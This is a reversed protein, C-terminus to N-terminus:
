GHRGRRSVKVRSFDAKSFQQVCLSFFLAGMLLVLVAGMQPMVVFGHIPFAVGSKILEATSANEMHLAVYRFMSTTYTLPNLYVVPKLIAPMVMTPIYAGSLFILPFSVLTILLQFNTSDKTLAALLLGLASFTFGVLCMIGLMIIGNVFDIRFGLFFGIIIIICGQLVAITMSSLVQGTAIQWRSIPAVLIEKMFGSSIDELVNMSNNLATQFVTMIIIGSILYNMPHAMGVVTAKTVFSFIFLFTGSMFLTFILRMRDRSFKLLNRMLIAKIPRIM